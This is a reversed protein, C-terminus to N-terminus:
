SSSSMLAVRMTPVIMARSSRLPPRAAHLPDDESYDEEEGGDVDGDTVGQRDGGDQRDEPGPGRREADHREAEEGACRAKRQERAREAAITDFAAEAAIRIGGEIGMIM